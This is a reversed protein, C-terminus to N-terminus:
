PYVEVTNGASLPKGDNEFTKHKEHPIGITQMTKHYESLLKITEEVVNYELICGEHKNKNKVHRKIDKMCMEFPYM